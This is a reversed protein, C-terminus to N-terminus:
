SGNEENKNANDRADWVLKAYGDKEQRYLAVPWDPGMASGITAWERLAERAECLQCPTIFASIFADIPYGEVAMVVIGKVLRWTGEGAAGFDLKDPLPQITDQLLSDLFKEWTQPKDEFVELACGYCDVEVQAKKLRTTASELLNKLQKEIAEKPVSWLQASHIDVVLKQFAEASNKTCTVRVSHSGRTFSLGREDLFAFPPEENTTRRWKDAKSGGFFGRLIGKKSFSWSLDSMELVPLQELRKAEIQSKLSQQVENLQSALNELKEIESQETM